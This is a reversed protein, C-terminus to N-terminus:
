VSGCVARVQCCPERYAEPAFDPSSLDPCSDKTVSVAVKCSRKFAYSM